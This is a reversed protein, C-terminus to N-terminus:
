KNGTVRMRALVNAAQERTLPSRPMTGDFLGEGCMKTWYDLAWGSPPQESVSKNYNTMAVDFMTNFENQTMKKEEKINKENDIVPPNLATKVAARFTNMNEGHKPFWHAVDGSNSAIGRRFGESHDIIHTENLGYLRCLLVCLDVANKWAARFYPEHKKADYGVMTSGSYTFGAPECIEFSIHTDNASGGAHWGRHNWPLYQWVEVSDSFAHVCVQRNTEGAKFSKNWRSFWQSAMVGPVATSHVMIGKPTIKRNATYCDNRTMYQTKLIM